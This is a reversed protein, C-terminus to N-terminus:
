RCMIVSYVVRSLEVKGKSYRVGRYRAKVLGSLVTGTSSSVVSYTAIGGRCVVWSQEVTVDGYGVM